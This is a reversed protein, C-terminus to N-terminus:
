TGPQRAPALELMEVNWLLQPRLPAPQLNKLRPSAAALASPHVLYIFPEQEHIIQQVRNFAARRENESPASAQARMLKDLEAEWPTEPSPQRPNWQHNAGSSLWVNMQGNPDPDVNVLGLLCGEYEFTKVMREILANFDLTVINMQIGLPKLDRQIMAALQERIRNGANTMITFAVPNGKADRLAGDRVTFGAGALLKRAKNLDQTHPKLSSNFFVKNAPPYPGVAPIAHGRYAVRCLDARNIAISVARRFAASRFWEKKHEPIRANRNQNFWLFESDMGPGIDLVQRPLAQQLDEWTKADVSSILDIEGRRFALAEMERNSQIGIRISDLYPLQKGASDKKWYNPNRELLLFSGQRGGALQFPGLVPQQKAADRSSLIAVQDLLRAVSALPAPLTISVEHPGNVKVSLTGQGSRFSDATASRISPSMLERFTYAVDASDFPSGDSFRVGKRLQLTISRADKSVKWSTALEPRLQQTRRDVRVLVGGTLYRILESSEDEVLLPNFTKPESRVMLRLQSQASAGFSLLLATLVTVILPRM